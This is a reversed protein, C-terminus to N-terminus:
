ETFNMVPLNYANYPSAATIMAVMPRIYGLLIAPANQTLLDDIIHSVTEDWGFLAGEVAKIYFPSDSKKSGITITLEVIAESDDILKNVNVDAHVKMNINDTDKKDFDKNVQFELDVLRPTKFQLGSNKM